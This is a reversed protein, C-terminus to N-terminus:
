FIMLFGRTQASPRQTRRTEATSAESGGSIHKSGYQITRTIRHQSDQPARWDRWTKMSDETTGLCKDTEKDTRDVAGISLARCCFAGRGGDESKREASQTRGTRGTTDEDLCVFASPGTSRGAMVDGTQGLPAEPHPASGSSCESGM